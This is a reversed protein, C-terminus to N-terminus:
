LFTPVVRTRSGGPVTALTFALTPYPGILKTAYIGEGVAIADGKDDEEAFAEVRHIPIRSFEWEYDPDDGFQYASPFSDWTSVKEITITPTELFTDIPGEMKAVVWDGDALTFTDNTIEIEQEIDERSFTVSPYRLSFMGGEEQALILDWPFKAKNQNPPIYPPMWGTDTSVWGSRGGPNVGHRRAAEVISNLAQVFSKNGVSFVPFKYSM